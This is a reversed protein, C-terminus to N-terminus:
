MALKPFLRNANILRYSFYWTAQLRSVISMRAGGSCPITDKEDDNEGLFQVSEKDVSTRDVTCTDDDDDSLRESLASQSLM